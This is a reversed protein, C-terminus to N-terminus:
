DDRTEEALVELIAERCQQCAFREQISSMPQGTAYEPSLFGMMIRECIEAGAKLGSAFGLELDSKM